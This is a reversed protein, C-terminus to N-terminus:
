YSYYKKGFSILVKNVENEIAMRTDVADDPVFGKASLIAKIIEEVMKYYSKKNM